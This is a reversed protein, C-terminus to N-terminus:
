PEVEVFGNRRYLRLEGRKSRIEIHKRGSGLLVTGSKNPEQGALADITVSFETGILGSTALSLRADIQAGFSAIITGTSTQLRQEPAEADDVFAVEIGGSGTQADIEGRVGRVSISGSNSQITVNARVSRVDVDGSLTQVLVAHGEPVFAVLDARQGRATASGEPLYAGFRATEADYRVSPVPAGAPAQAVATLELEHTFGGFRLHVDGFDNVITIAKGPAIALKQAFRVPEQPSVASSATHADVSVTAAPSPAKTTAVCASLACAGILALCWRPKFNFRM